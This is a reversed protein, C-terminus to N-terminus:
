SGQDNSEVDELDQAATAVVPQTQATATRKAPRPVAPDAKSQSLVWLLAYGLGLGLLFALLSRVITVPIGIGTLSSSAVVLFSFVVGMQLPLRSPLPTEESDIVPPNEM